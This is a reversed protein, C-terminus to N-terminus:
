AAQWHSGKSVDGLQFQEVLEELHNADSSLAESTSRSQQVMATNRKTVEDLQSVGADIDGLEKAQQVSSEAMDSVLMSIQGVREVISELAKGANNVFKVGNEVHGSSEGILGQIETAAEASRQALAGVESAVVAFGRGAEGARAAEVGANLALLNTQFAIDDIVDIIKSIQESSNSIEDMAFVAQKVIEGSETAEKRASDTTKQADKANEAAVRVGSTIEQLALATQELTAAQSEIRSSLSESSEGLENSRSRVNLTTERVTHLAEKLKLAATNFDKRLEEYEEPFQNSFNISLNGNALEGLGQSLYGVVKDQEEKSRIQKEELKEANRRMELTDQKFHYVAKAMKSLEDRGEIGEIFVNYDGKTFRNIVSILYKIRAVMREFSYIAFLLVALTIASGTWVLAHFRAKAQSDLDLALTEMESFLAVETTRLFDIWNTSISFWEPASLSGFDSTQYGNKVTQRSAEIEQYPNSSLIDALWQEDGIALSAQSLLAAQAGSLSVFRDYIPGSFGGGLGTAGMARELGASEKAYSVMGRTLLLSKLVGFHEFAASPRNMKLLERITGTYDAAMQPVSMSFDDVRSRTTELNQIRTTVNSFVDSWEQAALQVDQEFAEIANLSAARQNRLEVPFNQGSSSIYGASFGRERQLEHILADIAAGEETAILIQEATAMNQREYAIDSQMLYGTTLFLPGIVLLM